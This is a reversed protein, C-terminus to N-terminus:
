EDLLLIYIHLLFLVISLIYNILFYVYIATEVQFILRKGFYPSLFQDYTVFDGVGLIVSRPLSSECSALHDCVARKARPPCVCRVASASTLVSQVNTSRLCRYPGTLMQPVTHTGTDSKLVRLAIGKGM